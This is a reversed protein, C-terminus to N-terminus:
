TGCERQPRPPAASDLEADGDRSAVSPGGGPMRTTPRTGRARRGKRRIPWLVRVQGERLHFVPKGYTGTSEMIGDTCGEGTIWARAQKREAATTGFSRIEFRAKGHGTREDRM